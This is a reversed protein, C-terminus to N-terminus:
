RGYRPVYPGPRGSGLAAGRVAAGSAVLALLRMMVAGGGEWGGEVAGGGLARHTALLRGLEGAVFTAFAAADGALAYVPQCGSIFLGM